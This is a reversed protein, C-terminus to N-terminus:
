AAVGASIVFAGVVLSMYFKVQLKASREAKKDSSVCFTTDVAHKILTAMKGKGLHQQHERV